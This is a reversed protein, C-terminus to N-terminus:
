LNQEGKGKKRRKTKWHANTEKQKEKIKMRKQKHKNTKNEWLYFISNIQTKQLWAVYEESEWIMVQDNRDKKNWGKLFFIRECCEDKRRDNKKM